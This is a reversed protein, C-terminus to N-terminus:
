ELKSGGDLGLKSVTFSSYCHYIYCKKDNSLVYLTPVQKIRRM